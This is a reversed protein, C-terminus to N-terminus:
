PSRLKVPGWSPHAEPQEFNLGDRLPSAKGCLECLNGAGELHALSVLRSMASELYVFLNTLFSSLGMRYVSPM